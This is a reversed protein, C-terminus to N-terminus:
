VHARGIQNGFCAILARHDNSSRRRHSDFDFHFITTSSTVLGAITLEGTNDLTLKAIRVHCTEHSSATAKLNFDIPLQDEGLKFSTSERILIVDHVRNLISIIAFRQLLDGFAASWADDHLGGQQQVVTCSPNVCGSSFCQCYVLRMAGRETGM